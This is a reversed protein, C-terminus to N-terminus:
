IMQIKATKIVKDWLATEKRVLAKLAISDALMIDVGQADFIRATEQESSAVKMAGYLKTVVAVPTRIPVFLANWSNYGFGPLTSAIQPIGKLSTSTSPATLGLARIAGREIMATFSPMTGFVAQINGAALDNLAMAAGKYPVHVVKIGAMSAFLETGLHGLGGVAASGFNLVGPNEKAFAILEEVNKYPLQSNIVLVHPATAIMGVPSLQTLIDIRNKAMLPQATINGSACFYTTYGDPDARMVSSLAPVGAGGGMNEIVFSQNLTRSMAQTLHRGLVDTAGGAAFPIIVKIPKNPYPKEAYAGLTATAAVTGIFTRRTCIDIHRMITQVTNIQSIADADNM